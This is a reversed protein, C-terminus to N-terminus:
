LLYEKLYPQYLEENRLVEAKGHMTKLLHDMGTTDAEKNWRQALPELLFDFSRKHLQRTYWGYLQAQRNYSLPKVMGYILGSFRRYAYLLKSDISPNIKEATFAFKNKIGMRQEIIHTFTQPDHRLLEYPLVIVNDNGFKQRYLTILSNYDFLLAFDRGMNKLLEEFTFTGGIALYQFYFSRFLSAYGRTVILIKATPYICVLTESLKQRYADIDYKKFSNKLGILDSDNDWFSLKESSLVFCEHIPIPKEAYWSFDHSHRFGALGKPKYYMAPHQHFWHQLYKSGSKICGIHILVNSM